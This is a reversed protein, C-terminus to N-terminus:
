KSVKDRQGVMKALDFWKADILTQVKHKFATCDEISHGMVGGHYDCRANPNYWKPYPPKLPEIPMAAVLHDHVLQHFLKGYSIPIPDLQKHQKKKSQKQIVGLSPAPTIPSPTFLQARPAQQSPPRFTSPCPHLSPRLGINMPQFTPRFTTPQFFTSSPLGSNLPPALSLPGMKSISSKLEMMQMNLEDMGKM